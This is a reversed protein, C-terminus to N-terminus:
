SKYVTQAKRYYRMIRDAAKQTHFKGLMEREERGRTEDLMTRSTESEPHIRIQVLPKRLYRFGGEKESLKRFTEWDIVFSYGPSFLKTGANRLVYSCTPCPISNGYALCLTRAKKEGFLGSFVLPLRLLRKVREATGPIKMGQANINECATFLLVSDPHSEAERCIEKAYAPLYRDDQHAITVLEAGLEAAKELCFNWDEWLSPTGQRIFLPIQFEGALETLFDSPTSTCLIVESPESQGKLSILCERLYPSMRYASVAFIHKM